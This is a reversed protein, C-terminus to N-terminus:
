SATGNYPRHYNAIQTRIRHCNACVIECKDIEAQIVDWKEGNAVLRSVEEVKDRQHDFDMCIAPFKNGCDACPTSSKLENVKELAFRIAPAKYGQARRRKGREREYARRAEPDKRPMQQGSWFFHGAVMGALFPLLPGYQSRQITWVTRSLTVHDTTLAWSEYLGLILLALAWAIEALKFNM